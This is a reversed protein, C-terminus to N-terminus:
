KEVRLLEMIAAETQKRTMEDSPSIWRGVTCRYKVTERTIAHLTDRLREVREFTVRAHGDPSLVALAFEKAKEIGEVGCLAELNMYRLQALPQALDLELTVLEEGLHIQLRRLRHVALKGFANFWGAFRTLDDHYWELGFSRPLSHTRQFELVNRADEYFFCREPCSWYVDASETRVLRSVQSLDRYTECPSQLINIWLDQDGIALSYIKDRLERPLDIFGINRHNDPGNRTSGVRIDTHDDTLPLLSTVSTRLGEHPSSM